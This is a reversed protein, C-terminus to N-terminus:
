LILIQKSVIERDRKYRRPFDQMNNVNTDIFYWKRIARFTVVLIFITLLPYTSMCDMMYVYLPMFRKLYVALM